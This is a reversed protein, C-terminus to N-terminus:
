LYDDKLLSLETQIQQRRGKMQHTCWCAHCADSTHKRHQQMEQFSTLNAAATGFLEYGGRCRPPAVPLQHLPLALCGLQRLCHAAPPLWSPWIGGSGGHWTNQAPCLLSPPTNSFPTCPPSSSRALFNQDPALWIREPVSNFKWAM